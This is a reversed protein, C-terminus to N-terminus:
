RPKRPTQPYQKLEDVVRLQIKGRSVPGGWTLPSWPGLISSRFPDFESTSVGKAQSSLLMMAHTGPAIRDTGISAVIFTTQSLIPGSMAKPRKEPLSVEPHSQERGQDTLFSVCWRSRHM